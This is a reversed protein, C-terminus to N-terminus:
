NVIAPCDLIPLKRLQLQPHATLLVNITQRVTNGRECSEIQADRRQTAAHLTYVMTTVSVVCLVLACTVVTWNILRISHDASVIM